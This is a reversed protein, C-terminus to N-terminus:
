ILYCYCCYWHVNLMSHICLRVHESYSQCWFVTLAVFVDNSNACYMCAMKCVVCDIRVDVYFDIYPLSPILILIVRVSVCVHQERWKMRKKWPTIAMKSQSREHEKSSVSQGKKAQCLKKTINCKVVSM